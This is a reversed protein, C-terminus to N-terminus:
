SPKWSTSPVPCFSQFRSSQIFNGIGRSADRPRGLLVPSQDFHNFVYARSVIESTELPTVLDELFCQPCTLIISFTLDPHFNRHKSLRRSTKWSANPVPSFSPFRLSQIFNGIGRSADRPRGLLMPCPDFHHFVCAFISGFELRSSSM